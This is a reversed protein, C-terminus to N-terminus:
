SEMLNEVESKLSDLTSENVRFDYYQFVDFDKMGSGTLMLVVKAHKEIEGNNKLDKVAALATASAPEVFFGSKALVQQSEIIQDETVSQALWNYQKAKVILERGGMPNGTTIAEAVTHFNQFPIVDDKGEEIAKVIPANNEAQVIIMKPLTRIYGAEKLERFGKFIGRIHGCASTPVAIYDPIEGHLQEFLEFATLKYGEIRIPGNGSVIRLDLDKAMELTKKKMLSYDPAKVKIVRAGHISMARIKERPTYEPVFVVVKVGARAGYAAISNGMNGTSITATVTEGMEKSMMMCALSGRDKFSWTPNLTENKLYIDSLGAYQNLEKDAVLLPTNGEGLSIKEDLNNFPLFEGYRKFLHDGKRVKAKSINEMKVELSEGNEAFEELQDFPYEEGSITSILKKKM